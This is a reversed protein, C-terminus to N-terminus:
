LKGNEPKLERQALEGTSAAQFKPTLYAKAMEVRAAFEPSNVTELNVVKLKAKSQWKALTKQDKVADMPLIQVHAQNWGMDVDFEVFYEKGAEVNADLVAYRESLAIYKHKGPKVKLQFYEGAKTSAVFGNENWIDFPVQGILTEMRYFNIVAHESDPKIPTDGDVMVDFGLVSPNALLNDYADNKRPAALDKAYKTQMVMSAGLEYNLETTQGTTYDISLFVTEGPRNDVRAYGFGALGQVFHVSNIGSDLKLLTHSGNSLDAVVKDNVAVWAGRAGGQFNNGRILYVHTKDAQPQEAKFQQVLTQDVKYTTKCGTLALMLGLAGATALSKYSKVNNEM